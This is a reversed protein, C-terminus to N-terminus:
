NQFGPSQVAQTHSYRTRFGLAEHKRLVEAKRRSPGEQTHNYASRLTQSKVKRRVFMRM